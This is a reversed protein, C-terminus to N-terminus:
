EADHVHAEMARAYACERVRRAFAEPDANIEALAAVSIAEPLPSGVDGSYGRVACWDAAADYEEWTRSDHDNM